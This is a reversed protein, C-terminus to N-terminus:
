GEWELSAHRAAVHTFCNWEHVFFWYAFAGEPVAGCPGPARPSDRNMADGADISVGRTTRFEKERELDPTDIVFYVLGELTLVAGRYGERAEESEAEPEGVSMQLKLRATKSVFDLTVTQLIADHFGNPIQEDIQNLSGHLNM